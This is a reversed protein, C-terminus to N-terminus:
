ATIGFQAFSFMVSLRCTRCQCCAAGPVAITAVSAMTPPKKVELMEGARAAVVVVVALVVVVAAGVVVVVATGPELQEAGVVPVATPRVPQTALVLAGELLASAGALARSPLQVLRNLVFSSWAEPM